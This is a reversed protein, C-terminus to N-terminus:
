RGLQDPPVQSYVRIGGLRFANEFREAAVPDLPAGWSGIRVFLGCPGFDVTSPDAPVGIEAPRLGATYLDISEGGVACTILGLQDAALVVEGADRLPIEATRVDQVDDVAFTVALLAVVLLGAQHRVAVAVAIAVLPVAGLFFRPYLDFPQVVQWFLVFQAAVLVIVIASACAMRPRWRDAVVVFSLWAVVVLGGLLAVTVPHRGLVEEFTLEGLFSFYRNGRADATDLLEGITWVYVLAVGVGAVGWSVILRRDITGLLVLAALGTPGLAVGAFVHTGMAAVIGIVHGALLWTGTRSRRDDLRVYELVCVVALTVGLVALSYGRVARAQSVFMPNLAFVAAAAVGARAGFRRTAWGALLAVALAGYLIPFIRQRAEGMGGLDWWEAQVATFLPHTNFVETETLAVRASGRSITSTIAISEDFDFSRGLEAGVIAVTALGAIAAVVLDAHRRVWLM